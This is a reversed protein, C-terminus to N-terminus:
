FDTLGIMMQLSAIACPPARQRTYPFHSTLFSTFQRFSFRVRDDSYKWVFQGLMDARFGASANQGPLHSVNFANWVYVAFIRSGDPRATISGYSSHVCVGVGM